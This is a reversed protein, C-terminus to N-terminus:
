VDEQMRQEEMDEPFILNEYLLDQAESEIREIDEKSPNGNEGHDRCYLIDILGGYADLVCGIARTLGTKALDTLGAVEDNLADFLPGYKEKIYIQNARIYKLDTSRGDYAISLLIEELDDALEQIRNLEDCVGFVDLVNAM